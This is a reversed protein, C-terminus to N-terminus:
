ASPTAAPGTTSAATPATTPATAPAQASATAPGFPFHATVSTPGGDPSSVELTGGFGRLRQELGAIGHGDIAVAGGAGNDTVTVDLWRQKAKPTGRLTVTTVVESASAHKVANTLAEVAVFYANREVEQPLVTGEPLENVVRASITFRTSASELAAVLGRDSLIPPAFGRSLARLEELADKSQQMAETILAQAKKPDTELQREAAALDMQLRVLRQQPGDHIDRELRRLSHGEASIADGRSASVARLERALADSKFAGLVGRAILEHLSTFGRLVFPLTALFILGLVFYYVADLAAFDIGTVPLHLRENVAHSFFWPTNPNPLFFQWFWYTVGGLSISVWIVMLTWTITSVIFNIVMTHLLYLWYHGNGVVSRLWGWFGDKLRDHQWDPREIKARGAWELRVLEVIGFGRSVYLAAILFIAGIFFTVATGASASTLGVTVGYGVSAVPLTLVLFGLERPVRKWLQWYSNGNRATVPAADATVTTVTTM